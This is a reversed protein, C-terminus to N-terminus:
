TKTCTRRRSLDRYTELFSQDSSQSSPSTLESVSMLESQVLTDCRSRTKGRAGQREHRDCGNNESLPRFCMCSIPSPLSAEWASASSQKCGQSTEPSSQLDSGCDQLHPSGKTCLVSSVLHRQQHAHKGKGRARHVLLHTHCPGTYLSLIYCSQIVCRGKMEVELSSCIYVHLM